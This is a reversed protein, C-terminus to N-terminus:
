VVAFAELTPLAGHKELWSDLSGGVLREMAFCPTGDDLMGEAIAAVAGPHAVRRAAAGEAAFRGVVQPLSALHPHLVKVAVHEGTTPDVADFVASMGGIGILSELRYRGLATSGLRAFADEM